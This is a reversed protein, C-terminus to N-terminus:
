NFPNHLSFPSKWQMSPLAVVSKGPCSDSRSVFLAAGACCGIIVKAARRLPRKTVTKRTSRLGKSQCRQVGSTRQGKQGIKTAFEPGYITELWSKEGTEGEYLPFVKLHPPNPRQGKPQTQPEQKNTKTQRKPNAQTGKGRM